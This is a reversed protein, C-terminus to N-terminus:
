RARVAGSCSRTTRVESRPARRPAMGEPLVVTAETLVLGAGGLARSGLHVFHWDSAYGDHSSYQSM